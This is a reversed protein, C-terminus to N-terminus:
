VSPAFLQPLNQHAAHLETLRVHLVDVENIEHDCLTLVNPCGLSETENVDDNIIIIIITGKIHNLCVSLRVLMYYICICRVAKRVPCCYRPGCVAVCSLLLVLNLVPSYAAM